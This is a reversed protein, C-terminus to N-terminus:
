LKAHEALIAKSKRWLFPGLQKGWLFGGLGLKRRGGLVTYWQVSSHRKGHTWRVHTWRVQLPAVHLVRVELGAEMRESFRVGPQGLFRFTFNNLFDLVLLFITTDHLCLPKEFRTM